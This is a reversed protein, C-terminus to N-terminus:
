GIIILRYNGTTSSVLSIDGGSLITFGTLTNEVESDIWTGGAEARWLQWVFDSVAAVKSSTFVSPSVTGDVEGVNFLM